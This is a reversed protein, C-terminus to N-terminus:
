YKGNLYDNHFYNGSKQIYYIKKNVHEHSSWDNLNTNVFIIEVVNYFM